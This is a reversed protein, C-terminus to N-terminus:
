LANLMVELSERLFPHLDRSSANLDCESTLPRFAGIIIAWGGPFNAVKDAPPQLWRVIPDHYVQTVTDARVQSTPLPSAGTLLIVCVILIVLLLYWKIWSRRFFTQRTLPIEGFATNLVIRPTLAGRSGTRSLAGRHRPEFVDFENGQPPFQAHPSTPADHLTKSSPM